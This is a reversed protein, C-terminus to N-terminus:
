ELIQNQNDKEFMKLEGAECKNKFEEAVTLRRLIYASDEVTRYWHGSLFNQPCRDLMNGFVYQLFPCRYHYKLRNVCAEVTM